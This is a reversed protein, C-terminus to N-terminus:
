HHYLYESHRDSNHKYHATKNQNIKCARCQKRGVSVASGKALFVFCSKMYSELIHAFHFDQKALWDTYIHTSCSLHFRYVCQLTDTM